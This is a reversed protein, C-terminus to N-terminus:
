GDLHSKNQIKGPLMSIITAIDLDFSRFPGVFRNKPLRATASKSVTETQMGILTISIKRFTKVSILSNLSLFIM